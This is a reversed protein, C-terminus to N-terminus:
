FILRRRCTLRVEGDMPARELVLCHDSKFSASQMADVRVAYSWGADQGADQCLLHRPVHRGEQRM